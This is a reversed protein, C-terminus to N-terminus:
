YVMLCCTICLGSGQFASHDTNLTGATNCDIFDGLSKNLYFFAERDKGTIM